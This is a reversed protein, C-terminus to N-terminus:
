LGSPKLGGGWKKDLNVAINNNMRHLDSSIQMGSPSSKYSNSKTLSRATKDELNSQHRSAVLAVTSRCRNLGVILVILVAILSIGVVAITLPGFSHMESWRARDLNCLVATSM